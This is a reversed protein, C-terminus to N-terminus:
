SHNRLAFLESSISSYNSPESDSCQIADGCFNWLRASESHNSLFDQILRIDEDTAYGCAGSFRFTDIFQEADM